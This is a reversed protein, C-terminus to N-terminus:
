KIFNVNYCNLYGKENTKMNKFFYNIIKLKNFLKNIIENSM